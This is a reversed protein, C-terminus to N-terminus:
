RVFSPDIRSLSNVLERGKMEKGTEERKTKHTPCVSPYFSCGRVASFIGSLNGREFVLTSIEAHLFLIESQDFGNVEKKSEVGIKLPPPLCVRILM